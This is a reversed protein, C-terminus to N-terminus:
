DLNFPHPAGHSAPEFPRFWESFKLGVVAHERAWETEEIGDFEPNFLFLFDEDEFVLDRFDSWAQEDTERERLDLLVQAQRILAFLALEEAVCALAVEGPQALKWGVVAVTTTWDRAFRGDYYHEYRSPLYSGIPTEAYSQGPQGEAIASFCEDVYTVAADRLAERHSAPLVDAYAAAFPPLKGVEKAPPRRLKAPADQEGADADTSREVLAPAWWGHLEFPAAADVLQQARDFVADPQGTESELSVTVQSPTEPEDRTPHIGVSAVEGTELDVEVSVLATYEVEAKVDDFHGWFRDGVDPSRGGRIVRGTWDGPNLGNGAGCAIGTSPAVRRELSTSKPTSDPLLFGGM